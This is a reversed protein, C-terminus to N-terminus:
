KGYTFGSKDDHYQYHAIRHGDQVVSFEFLYDRASYALKKVEVSTIHLGGYNCIIDGAKLGTYTFVGWGESLGTNIALGPWNQSHIKCAVEDSIIKNALYKTQQM